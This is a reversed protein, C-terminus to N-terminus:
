NFLWNFSLCFKTLFCCFSVMLAQDGLGSSGLTAEIAEMRRLRDELRSNHGM